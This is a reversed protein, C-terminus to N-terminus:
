HHTQEYLGGLVDVSLFRPNSKRLSEPSKSIQYTRDAKETADFHPRFIIKIEGSKAQSIKQVFCVLKGSDHEIELMDNPHISKVFQREDKDEADIIERGERHRIIAELM